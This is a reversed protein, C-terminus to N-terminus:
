ESFESSKTVHNKAGSTGQVSSYQCSGNDLMYMYVAAPDYNKASPDTCGPVYKISRLEMEAVQDPGGNDANACEWVM